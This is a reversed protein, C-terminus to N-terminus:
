GTGRITLGRGADLALGFGTTLGFRELVGGGTRRDEWGEGQRFGRAL